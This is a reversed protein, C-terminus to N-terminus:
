RKVCSIDGGLGGAYGNITSKVVYCKNDGDDFVSIDGQKGSMKYIVNTWDSTKVVGASVGLPLSIVIGIVIGLTLTKM